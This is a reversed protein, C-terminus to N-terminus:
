VLVVADLKDIRLLGWRFRARWTRCFSRTQGTPLGLQRDLPAFRPLRPEAALDMAMGATRLVSPAEPQAFRLWLFGGQDVLQQKQSVFGIQYSVLPM